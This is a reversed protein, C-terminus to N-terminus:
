DRIGSPDNKPMALTVTVGQKKKKMEIVICWIKVKAPKQTFEDSSGLSSCINLTSNYIEVGM